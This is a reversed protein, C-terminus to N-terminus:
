AYILLLIVEPTVPLGLWLLGGYLESCSLLGDKNSDFARFADMLGMGKQLINKYIAALM